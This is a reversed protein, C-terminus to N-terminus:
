LNSIVILQAAGYEVDNVLPQLASVSRAPYSDQDHSVIMETGYRTDASATVVLIQWGISKYRRLTGLVTSSKGAWMPGVYLELSMNALNCCFFSNM